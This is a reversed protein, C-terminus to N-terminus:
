MVCVTTLMTNIESLTFLTTNFDRLTLLDRIISASVTETETSKSVKHNVMVDKISKFSM